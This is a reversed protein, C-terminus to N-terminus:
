QFKLLKEPRPPLMSTRAEPSMWRPQEPRTRKLGERLHTPLFEREKVEPDSDSRSERFTLASVTRLRGDDLWRCHYLGGASRRPCMSDSTVVVTDVVQFRRHYSSWRYFILQRFAVRGRFDFCHHLEIVDVMEQVEASSTRVDAITLGIMLLLASM